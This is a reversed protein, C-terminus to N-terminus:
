DANKGPGAYDSGILVVLKAEYASYDSTLYASLGGLKKALGLAAAEDEPKEYFVASIEITSTAAPGAYAVVGWKEDTIIPDLRLAIDGTDSTGDLLVVKAEPDLQPATKTSAPTESQGGFEPLKGASNMFNVGVIGATTLLAAAVLGGLLYRWAFRPQASVRHVGIRGTRPLDDFRDRPYSQAGSRDDDQRM